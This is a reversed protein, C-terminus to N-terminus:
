DGNGGPIDSIPLLSRARNGRGRVPEVLYRGRRSDLHVRHAQNVTIAQSSALHFVDVLKRGTARLVADEYTGRMEPIILATAIGILVLVVMLEILSFGRSGLPNSRDSQHLHVRSM